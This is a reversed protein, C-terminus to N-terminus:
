WADRSLLLRNRLIPTWMKPPRIFSQDTGRSLETCHHPNNRSMQLWCMQHPEDSYSQSEGDPPTDGLNSEPGEDRDTRNYECLALLRKMM